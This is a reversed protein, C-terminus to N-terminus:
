QKTLRDLPVRYKCYKRGRRDRYEGGPDPVMVTAMKGIYTVIGSLTQRNYPFSVSAGVIMGNQAAEARRTPLKHRTATHGFLGNALTLFRSSHSTRGDMLTELAHCLEHEFVLLFAEQPTAVSLGNLEFPGQDLRMLFDSSMRIEAHKIRGFAGRVFLFKGAASTLRSSLTVIVNLQRLYGGFFMSDYLELMQDLSDQSIGQVPIRCFAEDAALLRGLIIARQHAITEGSLPFAFPLTKRIM